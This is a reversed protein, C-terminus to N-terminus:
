FVKVRQKCGVTQILKGGPANVMDCSASCLHIVEPSEPDDYFWGLDGECAEETAVYEFISGQCAADAYVLNVRFYDLTEGEPAPPLSIQCPIAADGRIANLAALVSAAVDTEEGEEVLYADGTGGAEAIQALNGLFPGVGLVYTEIAPNGETCAQTRTVADELTPCCPGEGEPCTVPAKPEGDALLLMVVKHTPHERKWDQAHKCASEIAPGTPTEGTPEISNLSEILADANGPLNAIEVATGYDSSECTTNGLSQHGFYGIGVGIGASAPARLFAEAAERVAEIRTKNCGPAGCRNEDSPPDVCRCMSGSQDFLIYIDLPVSESEFSFGNCGEEDEAIICRGNADLTVWDQGAQANGGAGTEDGPNAGGLELSPDNGANGSGGGSVDDDGSGACASTALLLLTSAVYPSWGRNGSASRSRTRVM